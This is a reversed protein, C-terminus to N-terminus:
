LTAFTFGRKKLTTILEPLISATISCRDHLLIIDGAKVRTLIKNLLQREDKAVTDMSRLNWGISKLNSNRLAKALNPNTVGYPPRFLTVSTGTISEIAQNTLAIEEQMKAASQWDFNFGHHFSHNGISHAEEQMRKLLTERGAINKGIIFFTANVKERKLIDLVAETHEAPGDDFTLAVEKGRNIVSFKEQDFKVNLLPIKNVSRFYFNWQVYISGLVLITIFAIICALIWWTSYGNFYVGAAVHLV